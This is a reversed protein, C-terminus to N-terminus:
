FGMVVSCRSSESLSHSAASEDPVWELLLSSHAAPITLM